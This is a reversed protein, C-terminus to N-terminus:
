STIQDLKKAALVKNLLTLDYLPDFGGAGDIKAQTPHMFSMTGGNGGGDGNDGSSSCGVGLILVSVLVVTGFIARM